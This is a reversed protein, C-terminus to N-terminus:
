EGCFFFMCVRKEEGLLSTEFPKPNPSRMAKEHDRESSAATAGHAPDQFIILQRVVHFNTDAETRIEISDPM